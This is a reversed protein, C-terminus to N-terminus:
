KNFPIKFTENQPMGGWKQNYRRLSIYNSMNDPNATPDDLFLEDIMAVPDGITTPNLTEDRNINIGALKIRYLYDSIQFYRDPFEGDFLGVRQIIKLNIVMVSNKFVGYGTHVTNNDFTQIMTEIDSEYKKLFVREDVILFHSARETICKKIIFNLPSESKEYYLPTFVRVKNTSAAMDKSSTNVINISHYKCFDNAYQVTTKMM